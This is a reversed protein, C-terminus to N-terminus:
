IGSWQYIEAIEAPTWETTPLLVEAMLGSHFLNTASNVGLTASTLAGTYVGVPSSDGGQQVGDIFMRVRNQSKNWTMGLLFPNTESTSINFQNTTGNAVYRCILLNNTSWKALQAFNNNDTFVDAIVRIQGDTWAASPIKVFAFLGGEASNWASDLAAANVTIKDNNGDFSYSYQINGGFPQGVTAGVNTGDLAPTFVGSQKALATTGSVEQLPWRILGQISDLKQGFSTQHRLLLLKSM